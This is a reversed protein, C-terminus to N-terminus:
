VIVIFENRKDLYITNGPNSEKNFMKSPKLLTIKKNLELEIRM